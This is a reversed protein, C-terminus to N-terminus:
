IPVMPFIQLFGYTHGATSVYLLCAKQSFRHLGYLSGWIAELSPVYFLGIPFGHPPGRSFKCPVWLSGCVKKLPHHPSIPFILFLVVTLIKSQNHFVNFVVLISTIIEHDQSETSAEWIKLKLTEHVCDLQCYSIVFTFYFLKVFNATSGHLLCAIVHLLCSM